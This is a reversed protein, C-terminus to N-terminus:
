RSSGHSSEGEPPKPLNGTPTYEALAPATVVSVLLCAQISLSIYSLSKQLIRRYGLTMQTVPEHQLIM